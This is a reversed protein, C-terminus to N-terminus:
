FSHGQRPRPELRSGCPSLGPNREGSPCVLCAGRAPDAENTWGPDSADSHRSRPILPPVPKRHTTPAFCEWRTVAQSSIAHGRSDVGLSACPPGYQRPPSAPNHLQHENAVLRVAAERVLRLDSRLSSAELSDHRRGGHHGATPAAPGHGAPLRLPRFPHGAGRYPRHARSRGSVRTPRLARHRPGTGRRRLGTAAVGRVARCSVHGGPPAEGPESTERSLERLMANDLAQDAVIKKLQSNERELEKLRKAQDVKM